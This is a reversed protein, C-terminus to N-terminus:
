VSEIMRSLISFICSIKIISDHPLIVSIGFCQSRLQWPSGVSIVKDHNQTWSPCPLLLSSTLCVPPWGGRHLHDSIATTGKSIPSKGPIMFVLGMRLPIENRPCHVSLALMEICLSHQWLRRKSDRNHRRKQAQHKVQPKACPLHENFLLQLFLCIVLM